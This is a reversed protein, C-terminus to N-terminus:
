KVIYSVTNDWVHIRCSSKLKSLYDHVARSCGDWVFYDDLIIIGGQVVKPFLQEMCVMISDYWDGDLRLIAIPSNPLRPVTQDFWGRHVQYKQHGALKMAALAFSEEARCNEFYEPSSTDKQWAIAREGDIERAPPLGEFSDFLHVMRDKGLTEAIAATMGGRWVGCEVYDGVLHRFRDCLSLNLIFPQEVIMTYDKYKKYLDAYRDLSRDYRTVDIGGYRFLKRISRRLM